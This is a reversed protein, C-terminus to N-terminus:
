LGTKMWATPLPQSLTRENWSDQNIRELAKKSIMQLQPRHEAPFCIETEGIKVRLYRYTKGNEKYYTYWMEAMKLEPEQFKTEDAPFIEHLHAEFTKM